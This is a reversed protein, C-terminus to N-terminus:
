MRFMFSCIIDVSKIDGLDYVEKVCHGVGLGHSMTATRVNGSRFGQPWSSAIWVGLMVCSQLSVTYFMGQDLLVM